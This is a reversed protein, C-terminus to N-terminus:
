KAKKKSLPVTVDIAENFKGKELAQMHDQNLIQLSNIILKAVVKAKPDQSTFIHIRINQHPRLQQRIRVLNPAQIKQFIKIVIFPEDACVFILPYNTKFISRYAALLGREGGLALKELSQYKVKHEYLISSIRARVREFDLEYVQSYDAFSMVLVDFIALIFYLFAKYLMLPLLALVYVAIIQITFEQKMWLDQFLYISVPGGILLMILVTRRQNIVRFIKAFTKLVTDLFLM